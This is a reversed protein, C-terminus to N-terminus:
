ALVAGTITEAVEDAPIAAVLAAVEASSLRLRRALAPSPPPLRELVETLRDLVAAEDPDPAGTGKPEVPM